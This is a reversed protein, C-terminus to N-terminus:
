EVTLIDFFKPLKLEKIKEIENKIKNKVPESSIEISISVALIPFASLGIVKKGKMVYYTVYQYWFNHTERLVCDIEKLFDRKKTQMDIKNEDALEGIAVINNKSKKAVSYMVFNPERLLADGNNDILTTHEDSLIIRVANTLGEKKRLSSIYDVLKSFIIYIVIASCIVIVHKIM